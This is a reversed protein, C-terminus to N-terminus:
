NKWRIVGCDPFKRWLIASLEHMPRQEMASHACHDTHDWRSLYSDITHLGRRSMATFLRRNMEACHRQHYEWEVLVYEYEGKAYEDWSIEETRNPQGWFRWNTHKRFREETEEDYCEEPLWAGYLVGYRCGRARAEEATSGCPDVQLFEANQDKYPDRVVGELTYEVNSDEPQCSEDHHETHQYSSGGHHYSSGTDSTMSGSTAFLTPAAWRAILAVLGAHLLLVLFVLLSKLILNYRRQAPRKREFAYGKEDQSLLSQATEDASFSRRDIPSYETIDAM